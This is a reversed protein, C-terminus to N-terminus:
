YIADVAFDNKFSPHSHKQFVALANQTQSSAPSCKTFLVTEEDTDYIKELTQM